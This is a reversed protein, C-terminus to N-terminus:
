KAEKLDSDAVNWDPSIPHSIYGGWCDLALKDTSFFRVANLADDLAGFPAVRGCHAVGVRGDNAIALRFTGDM